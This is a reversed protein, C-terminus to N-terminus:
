IHTRAFTAWYSVNPRDKYLRVSKPHLTGEGGAVRVAKLKINATFPISFLLDCDVDSEVFADRFPACACELVRHARACRDHRQEWSKFVRAGAGTAHENYVRLKLTNIKTHLSYQADITSENEGDM